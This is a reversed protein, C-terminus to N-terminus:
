DGSTPTAPPRGPRVADLGLVRALVREGRGRVVVASTPRRALEAYRALKTRGSPVVIAFGTPLQGRATEPEIVALTREGSRVVRWSVRRAGHRHRLERLLSRTRRPSRAVQALHRLALRGDGARQALRAADWGMIGDWSDLLHPPFWPRDVYSELVRRRALQLANGSGPSEEAHDHYLVSVEASVYGPGHELLRLWLDVDEVQPHPETAESFRGAAEIADGAALVASTVVISTTAVDIPSRLTRGMPEPPGLHRQQGNPTCSLASSAVLVHGARHPWLSALHHPLWEDDSDLFAIWPHAAHSLGANRAAGAGRNVDHRVVDAGARQAVTATADQSGDDIVVVQAPPSPRQAFASAVARGVADARNHAPIIVTVPLTPLENQTIV